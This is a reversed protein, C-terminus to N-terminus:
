PKFVSRDSIGRLSAAGEVSRPGICERLLENLETPGVRELRVLVSLPWHDPHSTWFWTDPEASALVDSDHIKVTLVDDDWMLVM